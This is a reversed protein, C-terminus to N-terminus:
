NTINTILLEISIMKTGKPAHIRYSVTNTRGFYEKCVSINTSTSVLQSYQNIDGIEDKKNVGNEM